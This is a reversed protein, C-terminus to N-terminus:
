SPDSFWQMNGLIPVNQKAMKKLERIVPSHAAIAGARLSYAMHFDVRFSSHMM